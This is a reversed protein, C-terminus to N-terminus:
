MQIQLGLGITSTDGGVEPDFSKDLYYLSIRANFTKILYNVDFEMTDQDLDAGLFDYTAQGYKALVQFKGPGAEGAFLYAGLV